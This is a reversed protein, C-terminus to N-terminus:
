ELCLPTSDTVKEKVMFQITVMVISMVSAKFSDSLLRFLVLSDKALSIVKFSVLKFDRCLHFLHFKENSLIVTSSEFAMFKPMDLSDKVPQKDMGSSTCDVVSTAFFLIFFPISRGNLPHDWFFCLLLQSIVGIVLLVYIQINYTLVTIGRSIVGQVLPACVSTRGYLKKRTRGLLRVFHNNKYSGDKFQSKTTLM